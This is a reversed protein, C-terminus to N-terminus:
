RRRRKPKQRPEEDDGEERHFIVIRGTPTEVTLEHALLAAEIAETAEALEEDARQGKIL